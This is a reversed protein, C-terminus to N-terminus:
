AAPSASVSRAHRRALLWIITVVILYLPIPVYVVLFFILAALSAAELGRVISAAASDMTPPGKVHITDGRREVTINFSDKLLRLFAAKQEPTAEPNPPRLGRDVSDVYAKFATFEPSLPPSSLKGLALPIIFLIAEAGLGFLWM